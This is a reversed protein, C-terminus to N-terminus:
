MININRLCHFLFTKYFSDSMTDLIHTIDPGLLHAIGKRVFSYKNETNENWKEIRQYIGPDVVVFHYSIYRYSDYVHRVAM